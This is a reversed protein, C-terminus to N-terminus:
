MVGFARLAIHLWLLAGFYQAEEKTDFEPLGGRVAPFDVSYKTTGNTIVTNIILM